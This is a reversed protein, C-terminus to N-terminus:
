KYCLASIAAFFPHQFTNLTIVLNSADDRRRPWRYRSSNLKQEIYSKLDTTAADEFVTHDNM